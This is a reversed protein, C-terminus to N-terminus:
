KYPSINEYPDEISDEDKKLDANMLSEYYNDRNYDQNNTIRM